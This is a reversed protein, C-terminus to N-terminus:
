SERFWIFYDQRVGYMQATDDYQEGASDFFIGLVIVGEQPSSGGWLMEGRYGDLREKVLNGLTTAADVTTAWSTVQVRPRALGSPGQMHHDGIDSIRSYVISTLTIGQPMKVPYIRSGGVATSIESNGLLHARLGVRIDALTM